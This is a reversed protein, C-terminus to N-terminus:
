CETVLYEDLTTITLVTFLQQNILVIPTHGRQWVPVQYKQWIKKMEEHHTKGFEQIKGTRGLELQIIFNKHIEPLPLRYLKEAKKCFLYQEQQWCEGWNELTTPTQTLTLSIRQPQSLNKTLYLHSQYRRLMIQGLKIEPQKDSNAHIINEIIQQMQATSPPMVGCNELWLRILQKQKLLSLQSFAKINLSKETFNAYQNLSEALLEELLQQQEACHQATRAIMANFQWRQNLLPLVENRLFNRAYHSDANSEDEIWSLQQQQAYTLLTQKSQNLLPRYLEFGHSFSIESMASLGKVGSGRSLALLVTEAQDDQHHATVFVENPLLHQKIAQYRLQRAQQELNQKNALSVKVCQFPIQWSQCLQQCFEAWYDANPSIGHHIHIARIHCQSRHFLSLLVVSDVGGSLGLLFPQEQAYHAKIKQCFHDFLM